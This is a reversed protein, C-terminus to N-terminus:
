VDDAVVMEVIADSGCRPCVEEIYPTDPFPSYPNYYANPHKAGLARRPKGQIFKFGCNLCKKIKM